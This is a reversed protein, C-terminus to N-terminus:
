ENAKVETRNLILFYSLHYLDTMRGDESKSPQRYNTIM